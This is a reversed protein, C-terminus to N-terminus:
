ETKRVIEVFLDTLHSGLRVSYKENRTRRAAALARCKVASELADITRNPLDNRYFIGNLILHVAYVLDMHIRLDPQCESSPQAVDHALIRVDNHDTFDAVKFSRIDGDARGQRSVQDEACKM